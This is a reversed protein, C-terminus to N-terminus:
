FAPKRQFQAANASIRKLQQIHRKGVIGTQQVLLEYADISSALVAPSTIQEIEKLVSFAHQAIHMLVFDSMLDKADALLQEASAADNQVTHLSAREDLMLGLSDDTQLDPLLRLPSPVTARHHIDNARRKDDFDFDDDLSYGVARVYGLKILENISTESCTQAGLYNQLRDFQTKGDVHLLLQRLGHSLTSQNNFADLRGQMTKRYVSM